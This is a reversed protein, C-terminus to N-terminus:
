PGAGADPPVDWLWVNEGGGTSALTKGDPSFAVCCVVHPQGRFVERVRRAKVDWLWVEGFAGVVGTGAALWRGEGAFALCSVPGPAGALNQQFKGTAVDWLIVAGDGDSSALLTGDPSFAVSQVENHHGKLLARERGTAADWLRVTRDPSCTAITKGDPSFALARVMGGHGRLRLREKGTAVDWLVAVGPVLRGNDTGGGTGGALVEGDPSFVLVVSGGGLNVLTRREQGSPLDRLKVDGGAASTALTRGDRTVAVTFLDGNPDPVVARPRRAAVDWLTLQGMRKQTRRDLEGGTALLTGGDPTFAVSRPEGFRGLLLASPGGPPAAGQPAVFPVMVVDPEAQPVPVAPPESHWVWFLMALVGLAALPGLVAVLVILAILLGKNSSRDPRVISRGVDPRVPAGAAAPGLADTPAFFSNPEARAGCHPCVEEQAATIGATAEWEHGRPCRFSQPM